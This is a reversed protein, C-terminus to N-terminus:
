RTKFTGEEICCYVIDEQKGLALYVSSNCQTYKSNVYLTAETVFVSSIKISPM